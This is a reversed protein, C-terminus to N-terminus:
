LPFRLQPNPIERLWKMVDRHYDRAFQVKLKASGKSPADRAESMWHQRLARNYGVQFAAFLNDSNYIKNM